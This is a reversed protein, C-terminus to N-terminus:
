EADQKRKLSYKVHMMWHNNMADQLYAVAFPPIISFMAALWPSTQKYKNQEEMFRVAAGLKYAMFIHIGPILALIAPPLGSKDVNTGHFSVERATDRFWFYWFLGVSLPVALFGSFWPNRLKGLRMQKKMAFYEHMISTSGTPASSQLSMASVSKAAASGGLVGMPSLSKPANYTAPATDFTKEEEEAEDLRQTIGTTPQVLSTPEQTRLSKPVVKSASTEELEKFKSSEKLKNLQEAEAAMAVEAEVKKEAHVTSVQDTLRFIEALDDLKYWQSFGKRSVLRPNSESSEAGIDFADEASLPGEVRGDQFVFWGGPWSSKMSSEVDKRSQSENGM